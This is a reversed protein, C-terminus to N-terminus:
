LLKWKVYNCTSQSRAMKEGREDYFTFCRNQRSIVYAVPCDSPCGETYQRRDYLLKSRSLIQRNKGHSGLLFHLSSAPIRTSPSALRPKVMGPCTRHRPTWTDNGCGACLLCAARLSAICSVINKYIHTDTRMMVCLFVYACEYVCEYVCMCVHVCVHVRSYVWVCIFVSM